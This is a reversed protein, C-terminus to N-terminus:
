SSSLVAIIVVALVALVAASLVVAILADWNRSIRSGRQRFRVCPGYWSLAHM